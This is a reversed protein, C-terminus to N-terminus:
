HIQPPKHDKLESNKYVEFGITKIANREIGKEYNDDSAATLCIVKRTEQNIQQWFTRLNRFMVEDSEDVILVCEENTKIKGM